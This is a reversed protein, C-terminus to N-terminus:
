YFTRTYRTKRRRSSTRAGGHRSLVTRRKHTARVSRGMTHLSLGHTATVDSVSPTGNAAGVPVRGIKFAEGAGRRLDIPHSVTVGLRRQAPSRIGRFGSSKTHQDRRFNEFESNPLARFTIRTCAEGLSELRCGGRPSQRASRSQLPRKCAGICDPQRPPIRPPM